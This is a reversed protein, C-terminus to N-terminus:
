RSDPRPNLRQIEVRARAARRTDQGRAAVLVVNWARLNDPERLVVSNAVRLAERKDHGLLYGARIVTWETGIDFLEARRLQDLARDWEADSMEANAFIREAAALGILHDRVLVCFWATIVLALLAM